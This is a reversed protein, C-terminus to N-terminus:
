SVPLSFLPKKKDQKKTKFLTPELSRAPLRLLAGATAPNVSIVHAATTQPLTFEFLLECKSQNWVHFVDEAWAFHVQAWLWM